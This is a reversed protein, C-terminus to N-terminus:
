LLMNIFKIPQQDNQESLIRIDTSRQGLYLKIKHVSSENLGGSIPKRNAM